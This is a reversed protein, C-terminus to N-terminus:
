SQRRCLILLRFAVNLAITWNVGGCWVRCSQRAQRDVAAAVVCALCAAVGLRGCAAVDNGGTSNSQTYAKKRRGNLKQGNNALVTDDRFHAKLAKVSNTPHCSSCGAHLFVSHHPASMTIQRSHAASKCIAWSIGSGSM